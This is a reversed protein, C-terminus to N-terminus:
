RETMEEVPQVYWAGEFKGEPRKETGEEPCTGVQRYEEYIVTGLGSCLVGISALAFYFSVQNLSANVVGKILHVLGRKAAKIM